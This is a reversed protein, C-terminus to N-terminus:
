INLLSHWWKLFIYIHGVSFLVIVIYKINLIIFPKVISIYVWESTSAQLVRWFLQPLSINVVEDIDGKSKVTILLHKPVSSM